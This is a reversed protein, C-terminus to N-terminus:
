GAASPPRQHLDYLRTDGSLATALYKIGYSAVDYGYSRDHAGTHATVSGALRRDAVSNRLM